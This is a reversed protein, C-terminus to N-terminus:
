NAPDCKVSLPIKKTVCNYKLPPEILSTGTATDYAYLTADTWSIFTIRATWNSNPCGAQDWPITTPNVTTADFPSRGNKRIPDKGLLTSEGSATVKPYSRGPVDNEGNNTCTIEPIGDAELKITVDMKGLGSAFGTAVLSPFNETVRFASATTGDSSTSLNFAVKTLKIAGAGATTTILVSILLASLMTLIKKKM